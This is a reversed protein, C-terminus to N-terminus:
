GQWAYLVIAPLVIFVGQFKDTGEYGNTLEARIRQQAHGPLGRKVM